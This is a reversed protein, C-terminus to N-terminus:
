SEVFAPANQEVFLPRAASFSRCRGCVFCAHPSRDDHEGRPHECRCPVAAHETLLLDLVYRAGLISLRVRHADVRVLLGRAVLERLTDASADVCVFTMTRLATKADESISPYM